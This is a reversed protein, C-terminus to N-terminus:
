DDQPMNNKLIQEFELWRKHLLKQNIYSDKSCNMEFMKIGMQECKDRKEQDLKQISALKIQGYIPEYHTIGNIQIALKLDPFYFDLESDITDKRNYHCNLAPYALAIRDEIYKEQKSRRTGYEKHKNNYTAACSKTCFNNNTSKIQSLHKSFSKGCQKCSVPILGNKSDDKGKCVMSCFFKKNSKIGKIVDSKEKPHIKDCHDCKVLYGYRKQGDKRTVVKGKGFVEVTELIKSEDM